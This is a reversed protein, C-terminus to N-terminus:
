WTDERKKYGRFLSRMKAKQLSLSVAPLQTHSHTHRCSDVHTDINEHEKGQRCYTQQEVPAKNRVTAYIECLKQMRWKQFTLALVCM